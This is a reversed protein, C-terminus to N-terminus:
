DFIQAVMKYYKGSEIHKDTLSFVVDLYERRDHCGDCKNAYYQKVESDSIKFYSYNFNNYEFNLQVKQNEFTKIFIYPHNVRLLLLSPGGNIEREAVDKGTNYFVKEVNDYGRMRVVDEITASGTKLWYYDSNYKYNEPQARTPSHSTFQIKVKDLIQLETGDEYTIDELPVSGENALNNSIPRIWEGTKTDVGAICFEGHKSSKALIIIEKEM